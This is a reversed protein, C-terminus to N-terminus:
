GSLPLKVTGVNDVFEVYATHRVKYDKGDVTFGAQEELVPGDESALHGYQVCAAAGTDAFAYSDTIANADLTGDGIVAIERMSRTPANGASTPQYDNGLLQEWAVQSAVPSLLFRPRANAVLVAVNTEDPAVVSDDGEAERTAMKVFASALTTVGVAGATATNDAGYIDTVGDALKGAILKAYFLRDEWRLAAEVRGQLVQDLLGIRDALILEWTLSVIRGAKGLRVDYDSMQFSGRQYTGGQEVKLLRPHRSGIYTAYANFDPLNEKFAFAKWPQLRTQYLSRLRTSLASGIINPFDSTSNAGGTGSLTRSGYPLPMGLVLKALTARDLDRLDRHSWGAAELLEIGISLMSKRSLRAEEPDNPTVRGMKAVLASAVVQARKEAVNAGATVHADRHTPNIAPQRDALQQLMVSKAAALTEHEDLLQGVDLDPLGVRKALSALEREDARLRKVREEVEAKVKDKNPETQAPENKPDAKTSMVEEAPEATLEHASSAEPEPQEEPPDHRLGDGEADGPCALTLAARVREVGADAVAPVPVSSTEILEASNFVWEVTVAGARDRVFRKNGAEDVVERVKDGPWHYCKTYVETGCASCTVPGTPNWGISVGSMLGRLALEVAWPATVKISQRIEYSGEDLKVGKSAVVTGGRALSDGQRHDRLYPTGRGSAGLSLLAGDRFRVFNRNTKGAKQEYALVDMTVEVYEGAACKALLADRLEDTIEGGDAARLTCPVAFADARSLQPLVKAISANM